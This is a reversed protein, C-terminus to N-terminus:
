TTYKSFFGAAMKEPPKLHLKQALQMLVLPVSLLFGLWTSNLMLLLGKMLHRLRDTSPKQLTIVLIPTLILETAAM